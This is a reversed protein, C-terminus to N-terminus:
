SKYLVVAENTAMNDHNLITRLLPSKSQEENSAFKIRTYM